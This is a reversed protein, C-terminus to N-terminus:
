PRTGWVTPNILGQRMSRQLSWHAWPHFSNSVVPCMTLTWSINAVTIIQQTFWSVTDTALVADGHAPRTLLSRILNPSVLYMPGAMWSGLKSWCTSHAKKLDSIIKGTQIWNRFALALSFMGALASSMLSEPEIGLNPLDGPPPCPLGSWCEQRSFGM